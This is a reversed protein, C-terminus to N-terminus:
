EISRGLVRMVVLSRIYIKILIYSSFSTLIVCLVAFIISNALYSVFEKNPKDTRNKEAQIEFYDDSTTNYYESAISDSKLYGNITDMGFYASFTFFMASLIFAALAIIIIEFFFSNVTKNRPNGLASLVGIENIRSQLNLFIIVLFAINGCIVLLVATIQTMVMLKSLGATINEPTFLVLSVEAYGLAHLRSELKKVTKEDNYKLRFYVETPLFSDKSITQYTSFPIYVTNEPIQCTYNASGTLKENIKYIGGVVFNEKSLVSNYGNNYFFNLKLTDGLKINNLSALAESIVIKCKRDKSDDIKITSGSIISVNGNIVNETIDMSTCANFSFTLFGIDSGDKKTNEEFSLPLIGEIECTSNYLAYVDTILGFNQAIYDIINIKYPSKGSSSYANGDTIKVTGNLTGIERNIAKSCLSVAFISWM